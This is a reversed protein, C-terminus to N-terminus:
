RWTVGVPYNAVKRRLEAALESCDLASVTAAVAALWNRAPENRPGDVVDFGVTTVGTSRLREVLALLALDEVRRGLVRCSFLVEEVIAHAGDLRAVLAGIMGSDSFADSLRVTLTLCPGSMAEAAQQESLRKLALNFQNTKHSMQHLRSIDGPDNVAFTVEMRLSALYDADDTSVARLAVRQTDAALDDLRTAATDDARLAYLGPFRALQQWTKAGDDMARILAVEPLQEAVQALEVPNDDVFVLADTAVHLQAAITRLGVPKADWNAVVASFHGLRLGLEEGRASFFKEVDDADNKSCVALMVGSGRVASLGDALRRHGDTIQVGAPGDEGLVGSYLTNDLDLVVVKSRPRLLSPLVSSALHQGIRGSAPGSFPYSSIEDNRRDFFEAGTSSALAALDLVYIGALANVADSLALNFRRTWARPAFSGASIQDQETPCEPWNNVVVPEDAFRVARARAVAWEAAEQPAITRQQFRWDLWCLTVDRPGSVATALGPDYGSYALELRASWTEAVRAATPLAFEFPMSRNVALRVVRDTSSCRPLRALALLSLEDGLLVPQSTCVFRVRSDTTAGM